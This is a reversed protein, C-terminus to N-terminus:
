SQRLQLQSAGASKTVVRGVSPMETTKTPGVYGVNVWVAVAHDLELFLQLAGSVLREPVGCFRM